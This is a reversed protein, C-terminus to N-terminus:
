LMSALKGHGIGVERQYAVTNPICFAQLAKGLVLAVEKAKVVKKKIAMAAGLIYAWCADDFCIPQIGRIISEIDVGKSLCIEKAEELSKIDYEQLLKNIQEIRREYNEFLVM